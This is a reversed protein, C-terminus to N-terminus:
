APMLRIIRYGGEFGPRTVYQIQGNSFPAEHTFHVHGCFIAAISPADGDVLLQHCAITSPDSDRVGWDAQAEPTWGPAAMMIPADFKNVVPAALAPTHIPIHIFLLCSLETNLQQRLFALQVDNVQYTSNDLAVLRVGGIDRAQYAPNGGTFRFLRPYYEARTAESVPLHPYQWDHNGPLYVYPAKLTKLEHEFTELNAASPFHMIDGTLVVYDVELENARALAQQLHQRPSWGSPSNAIFTARLEMGSAITEADREDVEVLHSDTIQFLTIPQHLGDIMVTTEDESAAQTHVIRSM